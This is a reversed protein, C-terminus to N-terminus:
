LLQSIASILRQNEPGNGISIRLKNRLRDQDFYRVLISQMKLSQYLAQAGTIQPIECLLFNAQSPLSSIGLHALDKALQQRSARVKQWTDQAYATDLIAATALKQAIFDTNYSDRTKYMMPSILQSPGIGYGFRLGALSYGKSMTRLFLINPFQNILPISDYNLEPDIFDVYAEDILLVGNFDHAIKALYSSDLLSGTPAHPNVIIALKANLQNLKAAFTKPMSWDDELPIEVLESDQIGALVPYLSYSPKTVAIIEGAGVFTTMVLRLFEDGGNTPIINEPAVQHLTAAALRFDNALPPPYRRLSDVAIHTLCKAVKPGPPYPNENTNLKVVDSGSPQEGPMYGEMEEINPREFTM